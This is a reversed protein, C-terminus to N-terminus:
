RVVLASGSEGPAIRTGDPFATDRPGSPTWQFRGDISSLVRAHPFWNRQIAYAAWPNEFVNCGYDGDNAGRRHELSVIASVHDWLALPGFAAEHLLVRRDPYGSTQGILEEIAKPEGYLPWGRQPVVVILAPGLPPNPLQEAAHEIGARIQQDAFREAIGLTGSAKVQVDVISSMAPPRMQLDVDAATLDARLDTVNPEFVELHWGTGVLYHVVMAQALQQNVNRHVPDSAARSGIGARQPAIKAVLQDLFGLQRARELWNGVEIVWDEQWESTTRYQMLESAWAGGSKLSADFAVRAADDNVLHLRQAALAVRAPQVV